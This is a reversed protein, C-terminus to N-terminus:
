QSVLSSDLRKINNSKSGHLGPTPMSVTEVDYCWSNRGSSFASAFQLTTIASLIGYNNNLRIIVVRRPIFKETAWAM